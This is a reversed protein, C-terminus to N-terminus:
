KEVELILPTESLKFFMKGDKKEVKIMMLNDKKGWNEILISSDEPSYDWHVNRLMDEIGIFDIDLTFNKNSEFEFTSEKFAKLLADLMEKEDEKIEITGEVNVVNWLGILESEKISQSFLFSASLLFLVLIYKTM